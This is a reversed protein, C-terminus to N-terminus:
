ITRENNMHMHKTGEKSGPHEEPIERADPLGRSATPGNKTKRQRQDPFRGIESTFRVDWPTVGHHTFFNQPLISSTIFVNKMKGCVINKVVCLGNNNVVCLFVTSQNKGCLVDERFM